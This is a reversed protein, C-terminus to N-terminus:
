RGYHPPAENAPEEQMSFLAKELMVTRKELRDIVNRQETVVENLEDLLREQHTLKIELETLRHQADSM